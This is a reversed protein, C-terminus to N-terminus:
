THPARGLPSLVEPQICECPIFLFKAEAWLWILPPIKLGKLLGPISEALRNLRAPRHSLEIRDRTGKSQELIVSCSYLNYQSSFFLFMFASHRCEADANTKHPHNLPERSYIKINWRIVKYVYSPSKVNKRELLLCKEIIHLVHLLLVTPTIIEMVIHSSIVSIYIAGNRM